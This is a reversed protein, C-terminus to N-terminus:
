DWVSDDDDTDAPATIRTASSPSLGLEGTLAKFHARYQQLVTTWPNKVMGRESPVVVGKLSLEREGQRMRVVCIVYDTITERQADTLGASTVLAPVVRAWVEHAWERLAKDASKRGPLREEWDPEIPTAPAFRIGEANRDARFTGERVAALHPKPKTGPMSM